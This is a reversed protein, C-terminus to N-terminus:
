PVTCGMLLWQELYVMSYKNAVVALANSQVVVVIVFTLDNDFLIGRGGQKEGAKLRLVKLINFLFLSHM